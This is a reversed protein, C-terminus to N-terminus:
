HPQRRPQTGKRGAKGRGIKAPASAPQSGADASVPEGHSLKGGAGSDDDRHSGRAQDSTHGTGEHSLKGGSSQDARHHARRAEDSMRGSDEASAKSKSRSDDTM